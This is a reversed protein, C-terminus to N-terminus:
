QPIRTFENLFGQSNFKFNSYHNFFKTRALRGIVDIVDGGSFKKLTSGERQGKSITQINEEM